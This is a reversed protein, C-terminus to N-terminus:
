EVLRLVEDTELRKPASHHEGSITERNDAIIYRVVIANM